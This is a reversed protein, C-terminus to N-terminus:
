LPDPADVPYAHVRRWSSLFRSHGPYEAKGVHVQPVVLGGEVVWCDNGLDNGVQGMEGAEFYLRQDQIAIDPLLANWGAGQFLIRPIPEARRHHLGRPQEESSEEVLNVDAVDDPHGAVM